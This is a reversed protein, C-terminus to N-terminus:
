VIICESIDSLIDIIKHISHGNCLNLHWIVQFLLVQVDLFMLVEEVVMIGPCTQHVQPLDDIVFILM